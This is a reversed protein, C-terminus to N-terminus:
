YIIIGLLTFILSDSHFSFVVSSIQKSSIHTCTQFFLKNADSTYGPLKSGGYQKYHSINVDWSIYMESNLLKCLNVAYIWLM